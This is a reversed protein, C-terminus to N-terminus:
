GCQQPVLCAVCSPLIDRSLIGCWSVSLDIRVPDPSCTPWKPGDSWQVVAAPTLFRCYQLGPWSEM